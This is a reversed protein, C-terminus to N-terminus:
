MGHGWKGVRKHLTLDTLYVAGATGVKVATAVRRRVCARAGGDARRTSRDNWAGNIFLNATRGLNWTAKQGYRVTGYRAV